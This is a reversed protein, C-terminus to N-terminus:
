TQWPTRPVDEQEYDGDIDPVDIETTDYPIDEVAVESTILTIGTEHIGYVLPVPGGPDMTTLSGTFVFSPNTVAPKGATGSQTPSLAKIVTSFIYSIAINVAITYIATAVAVSAGMSVLFSVTAAELGAGQTDASIVVVEAEGFSFDFEEQTIPTAKSFQKDTLVVAMPHEAFFQQAGPVIEVLAAFLMAPKDVDLELSKQGFSEALAGPLYIERLM